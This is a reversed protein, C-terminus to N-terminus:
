GTVTNTKLRACRSTQAAPQNYVRVHWGHDHPTFAVVPLGKSIARGIHNSVNGVNLGVAWALTSQTGPITAPRGCSRIVAGGGLRDVVAILRRNQRGSAHALPLDYRWDHVRLRASGILSTGLVIVLVPGGWRFAPAMWSPARLESVWPAGGLLQGVLAAAVVICVAAPEILYRSAASWGHLAFAIEVIVWVLATAAVCLLRRDRRWIAVAVGGLFALQMPLEYLNRWRRLVGVIKSGHIATQQNLALDGASFWSKSTLGPVIFWVAPILLLALPVAIRARRDAWFLWIGYCGAFAWSEPRDLSALVLAAFAWRPHGGLHADIAALLLAVVLPDSNAILVLHPLTQIGMVAVGAFAGAVFPAFRRSPLVPGTLRYGLRGAFVGAAITGTVSTVSWLWVQTHGFLAYPLTFLFTLPKWSPAGSTNLSGYLVQHGWVMWGFPDFGPRMGTAAVFVVAGAVAAAGVIVWAAVSLRLGSRSRSRPRAAAPEDSAPTPAVSDSAV